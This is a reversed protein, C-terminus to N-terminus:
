SVQESFFIGPYLIKSSIKQSAYYVTNLQQDYWIRGMYSAKLRLFEPDWRNRSVFQAEDQESDVEDMQGLGRRRRGHRRRPEPGKERNRAAAGTGAGQALSRSPRWRQRGARGRAEGAVEVAEERPERRRGHTDRVWNKRGLRVPLPVPSPRFKLHLYKLRFHICKEILLCV